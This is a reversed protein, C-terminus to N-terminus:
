HPRLLRVRQTVRAFRRERTATDPRSVMQDPRHEDDTGPLAISLRDQVVPL